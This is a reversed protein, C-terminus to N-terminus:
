SGCGKLMVKYKVADPDTFCVSYYNFVLSKEKYNLKLDKKM